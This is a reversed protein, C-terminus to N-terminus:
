RIRSSRAPLAIGPCPPLRAAGHEIITMSRRILSPLIAEGEALQQYAAFWAETEPGMEAASSASAAPLLQQLTV